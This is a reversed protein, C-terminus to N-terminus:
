PDSRAACPVRLAVFDIHGAVELIAELPAAGEVRVHCRDAVWAEVWASEPARVAVAPSGGLTRAERAGLEHRLARDRLAEGMGPTCRCRHILDSVDIRVEVGARAMTATANPTAVGAVGRQTAGGRVRTWEGAREPLAALMADVDSPYLGGVLSPGMSMSGPPLPPGIRPCPEDSAAVPESPSGPAGLPEERPPEPDLAAQGEVARRAEPAPSSCAALLVVVLFSPRM